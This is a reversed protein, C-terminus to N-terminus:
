ATRSTPIATQPTPAVKAKAREANLKEQAAIASLRVNAKRIDAKIKRFMADRQVAVDDLGKENLIAQRAALKEVATQKQNEVHIKAKLNM